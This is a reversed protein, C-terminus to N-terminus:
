AATLPSREAVVRPKIVGSTVSVSTPGHVDGDDNRGPICRRPQGAFWQKLGGPLVQNLMDVFPGAFGFGCRLHDDGGVIIADPSRHRTEAPSRDHGPRIM